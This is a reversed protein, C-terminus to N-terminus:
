ILTLTTGAEPRAILTSDGLRVHKVGRSLAAFANDLKPIMGDTVIQKQKLQLYTSQDIQHIVSADNDPDALLGPKELCFWLDTEYTGALAVAITSAITDANTNLLQGQQDHTLSAFVPVLEANLLQQYTSVPLLTPNTDGVYGWDIDKVPRKHAPLLNADAGTLGLANCGLAQLKAVLKKNLLGGYVMTVVELTEQDTIRRGEHMRPTLGMKSSLSAAQKGGGHVLIKPGRWEAFAALVQGLRNDDDVIKGGIKLINLKQM